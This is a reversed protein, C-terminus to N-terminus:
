LKYSLGILGNWCSVSGCYRVGDRKYGLLKDVCVNEMAHFINTEIDPNTKKLEAILRKTETRKHGTNPKGDSTIQCTTCTDTFHCACQIFHLRNADRWRKIDAERIFYLPRILEMGSFNQSKLKPMMGSWQGSYLMGMLVTEIVDDYHHGLAIKNCGLEQAKKYLYGRRMRACLYCPSNPVTYVADFIQTEFFTLPIGLLKANSEIIHRNAENYGPDMCLFVLDFTYQGHKQFEQFLKAMLMSDKGGSICVAIKDGNQILDYKLIARAFPNVLDRRFKKQLSREIEVGREENKSEKQIEYLAWAGYGGTLSYADYGEDAMEEALDRSVTGYKCYLIIRTDKSFPSLKRGLFERIQEPSFLMTGPIFGHDYEEKTRLDILMYEDPLLADFQEPSLEVDRM